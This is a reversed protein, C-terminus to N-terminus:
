ISFEFFPSSLCHLALHPPEYHAVEDPDANNAFYVVTSRQPKFLSPVM